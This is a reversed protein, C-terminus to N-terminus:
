ELEISYNFIFYRVLFIIHFANDVYLLWNKWIVDLSEQEFVNLSKQLKHMLREKKPEFFGTSQQMCIEEDLDNHHFVVKVNTHELEVDTITLFGLTM